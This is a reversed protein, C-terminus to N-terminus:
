AACVLAVEGKFGKHQNWDGGTATNWWVGGYSPHNRRDSCGEPYNPLHAVQMVQGFVNQAFEECSARTRVPSGNNQCTPETEDGMATKGKYQGLYYPVRKCLTKRGILQKNQVPVQTNFRVFVGRRRGKAELFCGPVVSDWDFNMPVHEGAELDDGDQVNGLQNVVALVDAQGKAESLAAQCRVESSILEYGVGCCERANFAGYTGTQSCGVKYEPVRKCLTKRGILQKNQAPVQNNFRVFVGRRRGKAELFCGPVVSDWDFEMPDHEGAELDDGDQANGLQNVVELVDAQGKAERLAAECGGESSILEYGVGCCEQADFAGYAGIQSCGVKYMSPAAATTTRAHSVKQAQLMSNEDEEAVVGIVLLASFVRM